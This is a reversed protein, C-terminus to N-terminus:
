DKSKGIISLIRVFLNVVDVYIDAASDIANDITKPYEQACAWDYGVYGCFIIVVLFDFFTAGIGLVVSLILEAIITILLTFFLVRGLGKFFAPFITAALMMAGTVVATTAFALLISGMEFYSVFYTLLLGMSVSLGTFGLFSIVPNSSGYVVFMSAFSGVFYVIIMILYNMSCIQEGFAQSMFINIAVGWLVVAGMILNYVNESVQTGAFAHMRELKKEKNDMM